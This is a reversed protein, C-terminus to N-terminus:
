KLDNGSGTLNHAEELVVTSSRAKNTLCQFLKRPETRSRPWSRHDNGLFMKAKWRSENEVWSEKDEEEEGHSEGRDNGQGLIDGMICHNHGQFKLSREQSRGQLRWQCLRKQTV